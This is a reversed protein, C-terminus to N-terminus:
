GASVLRAACGALAWRAWGLALWSAPHGPGLTENTRQCKPLPEVASGKQAPEEGQFARRELDPGSPVKSVKGSSAGEPAGTVIGERQAMMLSPAVPCVTRM